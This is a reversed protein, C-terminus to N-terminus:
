AEGRKELRLFLERVLGKLDKRGKHRRACLKKVRAVGQLDSLKKEGHALKGRARGSPVGCPPLDKLVGWLLEPGHTAKRNGVKKKKKGGSFL